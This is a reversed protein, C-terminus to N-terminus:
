YYNASCNQCTTGNGNSICALCDVPCVLCQTNTTGPPTYTNGTCVTCTGNNNFYYNGQCTLCFSSQNSCTYCSTGCPLCSSYIHGVPTYQTLPCSVCIGSGNIQYYNASCSQCNTGNGNPICALCNAPCVLCQTNTNGSPNYTNGTCISCTGNNLYYNASCTM